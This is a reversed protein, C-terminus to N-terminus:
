FGKQVGFPVVVLMPELEMSFYVKIMSIVSGINVTLYPDLCDHDIQAFEKQGDMYM